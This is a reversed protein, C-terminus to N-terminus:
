RGQVFSRISRGQCSSAVKWPWACLPKPGGNRPIGITLQWQDSRDLRDNGAAWNRPHRNLGSRWNEENVWKINTTRGAVSVIVDRFRAVVYRRLSEMKLNSSSHIKTPTTSPTTQRYYMKKEGGPNRKNISRPESFQKFIVHLSV